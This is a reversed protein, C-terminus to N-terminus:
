LFRKVKKTFTLNMIFNKLNLELDKLEEELKKKDRDIAELKETFWHCMMTSKQKEQFQGKKFKIENKKKVQEELLGFVWVREKILFGLRSEIWEKRKGKYELSDPSAFPREEPSILKAKNFKKSM